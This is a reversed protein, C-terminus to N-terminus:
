MEGEEKRLSLVVERTNVRGMYDKFHQKIVVANASINTVIGSNEGILTGEQLIYGRKTGDQILAKKQAGMIIGVLEVQSLTLRQLPDLSKQDEKKQLDAEIASVYPQFPDRTGTVAYQPKEEKEIVDVPKVEQAKKKWAPTPTVTAQDPETGGSCAVLGVAVVLATIIKIIRKM